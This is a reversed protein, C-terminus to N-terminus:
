KNLEGLMKIARAYIRASKYIDKIPMLENPEHMTSPRGPFLAGFAITNKAHKAYTGGGTTLPKTRDHTEKKYAKLLTKVLDSEPNYLLYHSEEGLVTLTKFNNDFNIMYATRDVNEPYRFNVTFDLMGKKYSIKGVCYTTQGLLESEAFGDFSKGTTDSLKKGLNLLEPVDYVKGLGIMAKLAANDGLEPTSGHASKGLIILTKGTIEHSIGAEKCYNVMATPDDLEIEVKDCVANTAIGGKISKVGPINMKLECFFDTIGKEGYILPFDSDPTFGFDPAPKKLKLFYYDLCKSGREEDGGVVIRVKYNKLLRSKELAKTAFFAALLPGKDDSTGRGYINGNHIRPEFPDSDWKGTAPVVDAHAFIGITREGEGITLETCYGDCRDVKFGYREGMGAVYALADDVAKGFPMKDTKTSEDYVSPIKILEKLEKMMEHHYFRLHTKYSM